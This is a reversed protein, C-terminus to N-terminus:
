PGTRGCSTCTRSGTTARTLPTSTPSPRSSCRRARSARALRRDPRAGGACPATSGAGGALSVKSNWHFLVGQSMFFSRRALCGPAAGKDENGPLDAMRFLQVNAPAGKLEPVYAVVVPDAGPSLCCDAIGKLRLRRQIGGAFDAPDYVHAENTVARLFATQDESWFAVPWNEKAIYKQQQSWLIEGSALDWVKLNRESKDKKTPKQFTLVQDFRPSLQMFAVGPFALGAQREGSAADFVEIGTGTNLVAVRAGDQSFQAANGRVAPFQVRPPEPEGEAAAGAVAGELGLLTVTDVGKEEM